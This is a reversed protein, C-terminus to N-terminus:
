LSPVNRNHQNFIRRANRDFLEWHAKQAAPIRDAMRSPVVKFNGRAGHPKQSFFTDYAARVFRAKGDAGREIRAKVLAGGRTDATKMNSILNGLSYVVLVDKDEADNRVVEMPQIM